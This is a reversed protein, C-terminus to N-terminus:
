LHHEHHRGPSPPKQHTNSTRPSHIPFPSLPFSLHFYPYTSEQNKKEPTIPTRKYLSSLSSSTPLPHTRLPNATIPIVHIKRPNALPPPHTPPHTRTRLHHYPPLNIKTPYLIHIHSISLKPVFFIRLSLFALTSVARTSLHIRMRFECCSEVWVGAWNAISEVIM